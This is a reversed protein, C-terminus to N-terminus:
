LPKATNRGNICRSVSMASKVTAWDLVIRDNNHPHFALMNYGFQGSAGKNGDCKRLSWGIWWLNVVARVIWMLFWTVALGLKLFTKQSDIFLAM